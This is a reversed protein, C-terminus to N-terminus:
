NENSESSDESYDLVEENKNANKRNLLKKIGFAAAVVLAVGAIGMFLGKKSKKQSVVNQNEM